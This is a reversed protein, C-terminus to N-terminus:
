AARGLFRAMGAETADTEILTLFRQREAELGRAIAARREPPMLLARTAALSAPQKTRLTECWAGVLADLASEEALTTALGLAILDDAGLRRNLMQIEAARAAGIKEPLLATWGGDPSFGVDVYYPQLFARPSVAVLDAALILGTSGGTVPGHVRAIVPAPFDVLQLIVENLRGVLSEAYARRAGRPLDAFGAVDGGTSFSRGNARLVLACPAADRARGLASALDDLLAPVLSNHREPRNLTVTAVPGAVDLLALPEAM